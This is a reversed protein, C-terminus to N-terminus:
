PLATIPGSFADVVVAYGSSSANKTHTPQIEITHNAATLGSYSFGYRWEQAAAYLDLSSSQLVGDILVNVKGYGPGRATLFLISTGNFRFRAVAGLTGNSRYSGGSASTQKTGLWKNYQIALASEQVATTSSGVLFGDLALARSAM